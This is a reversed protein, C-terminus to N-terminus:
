QESRKRKKELGLSNMRNRHRNFCETDDDRFKHMGVHFNILEFGIAFFTDYKNEACVYKRSLISWLQGMRGFYNEVITRDSSHNKNFEICERTLM